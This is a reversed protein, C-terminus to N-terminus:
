YLIYIFYKIYSILSPVGFLYLYPTSITVASATNHIVDLLSIDSRVGRRGTLEYIDAVTYDM